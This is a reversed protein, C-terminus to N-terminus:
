AYIEGLIKDSGSHAEWLARKYTPNKLLRAKADACVDASTKTLSGGGIGFDAAYKDGGFVGYDKYGVFGSVDGYLWISWFEAQILKKQTPVSILRAGPTWLLKDPDPAVMAAGLAALFGRRNM